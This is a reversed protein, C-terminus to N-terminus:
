ASLGVGPCGRRGHGSSHGAHLLVFGHLAHDPQGGPRRHIGGHIRRRQRDAAVRDVHRIGRGFVGPLRVPMSCLRRARFQRHWVLAPRVPASTEAQFEHHHRKRLPHDARCLVGSRDHSFPLSDSCRWSTRNVAATQYSSKQIGPRGEPKPSFRCIIM